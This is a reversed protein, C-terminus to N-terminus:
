IVWDKLVIKIKGKARLKKEVYAKVEFCNVGMKEGLFKGKLIVKELPFIPSHFQIETGVLFPMKLENRKLNRLSGGRLLILSIGAAQALAEAILHGPVVLGLPPPFHGECEKASFIKSAIIERKERNVELIEDVLLWRGRHPLVKKIIGKKAVSVMKVKEEM